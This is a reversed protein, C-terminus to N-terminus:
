LTKPKKVKPQYTVKTGLTIFLAIFPMVAVFAIFRTNLPILIQDTQRSYTQLLSIEGNGIAIKRDISESWYIFYINGPRWNSTYYPTRTVINWSPDIIKGHLIYDLGTNHWYDADGYLGTYEIDYVFIRFIEHDYSSIVRMGDNVLYFREPVYEDFLRSQLILSDDYVLINGFTGPEEFDNRIVSIYFNNVVDNYLIDVIEFDFEKAMQPALGDWRYIASYFDLNTEGLVVLYIESDKKVLDFRQNAEYLLNVVRDDLNFSHISSTSGEFEYSSFYVKDEIIVVSMVKFDQTSVEEMMSSLESNLRYIQINSSGKYYTLVYPEDQHTFRIHTARQNIHEEGVSLREIEQYYPVETLHYYNRNTFYFIGNVLLIIGLTYAFFYGRNRIRIFVMIFSLVFGMFIATVTMGYLVNLFLYFQTIGFSLVMLIIPIIFFRLFWHPTYDQPVIEIKQTAQLVLEDVSLHYVKSLAVLTDLNPTNNGKEWRSVAQYTVNVRKALEAQTLGHKLRLEKLLKGIDKNKM